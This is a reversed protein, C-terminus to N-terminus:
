AVRSQHEAGPLLNRINFFSVLVILFLILITWKDPSFNSVLPTKYEGPFIRRFMGPFTAYLFVPLCLLAAALGAVAAVRPWIFILVLVAIFLYFGADYLELLVGTVRGGPFESNDLQIGYQLLALICILVTIASFLKNKMRATM